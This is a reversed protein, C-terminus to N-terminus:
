IMIPSKGMARARRNIENIIRDTRSTIDDSSNTSQRQIADVIALAANNTAQIVVSALDDNSVELAEVLAKSDDATQAAVNYPLVTGTAVDPVRFTVSDAIAQLRDLLMTFSDAIKDSFAELTYGTDVDIQMDTSNMKQAMAGAVESVAGLIEPQSNEFGEAVGLGMMEGVGDRFLTSPSHIGLARRATNYLSVALNWVKNELWDWKNQLGSNIGKVINTGVSQWNQDAITSIISSLRAPVTSAINTAASTVSSQIRAWASAAGASATNWTTTFDTSVTKLTTSITSSMTSMATSVALNLLVLAAASAVIGGFISDFVGVTNNKTDTEEGQVGGSFGEMFYEGLREARKSPSGIELTEKQVGTVATEIADQLNKKAAKTEEDTGKNWGAFFDAVTMRGENIADVADPGWIQEVYEKFEDRVKGQEDTIKGLFGEYFKHAASDGTDYMEGDMTVAEGFITMFQESLDDAEGMAETLFAKYLQSVADEGMSTMANALDNSLTGIGGRKEGLAELGGEEMNGEGMGFANKIGQWIAGALAGGLNVFISWAASLISDAIGQWDIRGFFEEIAAQLQSKEGNDAKGIGQFFGNIADFLNQVGTSVLEGFEGWPIESISNAIKEGIKKGVAITENGNAAEIDKATVDFLSLVFDGTQSLAKEAEGWLGESIGKWDIGTLAERIRTGLKAGISQRNFAIVEMAYTGGDVAKKPDLQENLLADVFNGAKSIALKFNDWLMTAAEGFKIDKVADQIASAAKEPQFADLAGNAFSLVGIMLTNVTTAMGSFISNWPINSLADGVTKGLRQGIAQIRGGADSIENPTIGLLSILMDETNKRAAGFAAKANEWMEDAISRWPIKELAERIRTGLKAGISQDNFMMMEIAQDHSTARSVDENLLADVFNGAKSVALNFDDWLMTAITGWQIRSLATKIANAADEPNFKDLLGHAFTLVGAMMGNATDGIDAWLTEDEFVTNLFEALKGGTKEITERDELAPIIFELIGKISASLTDGILDVDIDEVLSQIGRQLAKGHEAWNFTTIWNRLFTFAGNIARAIASGLTNTSLSDFLSNLGNGVKEGLSAWPFNDVFNIIAKAIGTLGIGITRGIEDFHINGLNGWLLDSLKQGLDGWNIDGVAAGIVGFVANIKQSMTRGLKAWDATKIVTNIGSAIKRGIDGWNVREMFANYFEAVGNFLKTIKSAYEDININKIFTNIRDALLRGLEAFEGNKLMKKLKAVFDKIAKTVPTKIFKGVGDNKDSNSSNSGNDNPAKLINLEDFSALQREAKKASKTTKDLSKAYDYNGKTAKYVYDQGTLAAFFMGLKVMAESFMNMLTKLIPAAVNLLPQFATAVSNKMLTLTASLDSIVKNVEPVQKAMNKFADVIASRLKRVLMYISRVGLGYRILMTIANKLNMTSRKASNGIGLISRGARAAFSGLKNVGSVQAVLRLVKSAASKAADGLRQFFGIAASGALRALSAAANGVAGILRQMAGLVAGGAMRALSAAANVAAHALQQVTSVVRGVVMKGLSLAVDLAKKALQGLGSLVVPIIRDLAQFPHTIAHGAISAANQIRAFAEGVTGSVTRMKEWDKIYPPELDKELKRTYELKTNIDNLENEVEKYEKSNIAPETDRGTEVMWDRQRMLEERRLVAEELRQTNQKYDRILQEDGRAIMNNITRVDHEYQNHEQSGIGFMDMERLDRELTFRRRKLKKTDDDSLPTGEEFTGSELTRNVMGLEDKIKQIEQEYKEAAEKNKQIRTTLKDWLDARREIDDKRFEQQAKEYTQIEKNVQQISNVTKQFDPAPVRTAAMGILQSRLQKAATELDSIRARFNQTAIMNNEIAKAYGVTSADLDKGVGRVSSVLSKIAANLQKAGDLVPKTNIGTDVTIQPM